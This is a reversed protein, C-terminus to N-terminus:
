ILCCSTSCSPDSHEMAAHCSAYVHQLCHLLVTALFNYPQRQEWKGKAAHQHATLIQCQRVLGTCHTHRCANIYLMTVPHFLTKHVTKTIVARASLM